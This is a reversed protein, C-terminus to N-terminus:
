QIDTSGSIHKSDNNDRHCSDGKTRSKSRENKITNMVDIGYILAFVILIALGIEVLGAMIIVMSILPVILALVVLWAWVSKLVKVLRKQRESDSHDV